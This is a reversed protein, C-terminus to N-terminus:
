GPMSLTHRFVLAEYTTRREGEKWCELQHSHTHSRMLYVYTIKSFFSLIKISLRHRVFEIEKKKNMRQCYEVLITFMLNRM